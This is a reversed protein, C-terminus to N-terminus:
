IKNVNIVNINKSDIKIEDLYQGAGTLVVCTDEANEEVIQTFSYCKLNYGYAYKNIKNPSNDLFGSVKTHDLGHSFLAISYASAPWLYVRKSPNSCMYDNLYQVVKRLKDFYLRVDNESTKNKPMVQLQPVSRVLHFQVTHTKYQGRTVLQFGHKSFTDILFQHEVYYIHESNLLNYVGNHIDHEFHPHNIFINKINLSSAFKQILSVPEYIHEFVNSMVITDVDIETLPVDEIFKDIVHINDRNGTYSPDSIYYKCNTKELICSALADTCAGIELIGQVHSNNVIFDSFSINLQSKTTGYTDIHNNKYIIEPSGLYKNQITSCNLCNLVNYPMDHAYVDKTSTWGQSLYVRRDVDFLDKFSKNRCFLCRARLNYVDAM